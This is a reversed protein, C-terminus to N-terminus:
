GEHCIVIGFTLPGAQFIRRGEGSIYTLEESPDIQQKDQWGSVIGDANIV